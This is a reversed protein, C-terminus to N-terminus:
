STVFTCKFTKYRSSTFSCYYILKLKKSMLHTEVRINLLKLTEFIFKFIEFDLRSMHLFQYMEVVYYNKM